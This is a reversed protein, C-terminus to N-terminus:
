NFPIVVSKSETILPEIGSGEALLKNYYEILKNDTITYYIAWPYKVLTNKLIEEKSTGYWLVGPIAWTHLKRRNHTLKSLDLAMKKSTISTWNDNKWEVPGGPNQTLITFGHEEPHKDFESQITYRTNTNNSGFLGLAGFEISYLDNNIFWDVTSLMSENTDGTLGVIFNTHLPVEKKWHNHYLEPIFDRAHKGSWAKGVLKSATPHLSEIGHYAGFLGSDKLWGIMDPFRHILDARLYASYNIKFPLRQTMDHFAKVKIETDNFTDDLIYYGTTGFNEYNYNIEDELYNMGRIYDLKKKGLHPYQCFKCAFICGRSVDLPLPEGPLICDQTTFRFDDTEINYTPNRARDYMMRHKHKRKSKTWNPMILTGYPAPTGKRLHNLYELFIDETATTYSMVTTDVIGWGSVKDSMYGGIVIKINPYQSKIERLTDVIHRPMRAKKGYSYDYTKNCIFTTSVALIATESNVFKQTLKLLMDKTLKDAFDIIQTQYGHKRIWHAIKYPGIYRRLVSDSVGGSLIVVDM